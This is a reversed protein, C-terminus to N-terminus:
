APNSKSKNKRFALTGGLGLASFALWGVLPGNQPQLPIRALLSALIEDFPSTSSLPENIIVAAEDSYDSERSQSDYATIAFYYVEGNNLGDLRYQSVRGITRRRTYMGSTKGYYLNYGVLEPESSLDWKLDVYGPGTNVQLNQPRQLNAFGYGTVIVEAPPLETVAEQGGYPQAGPNLNIILAEPEGSLINVPFAQDVINVSTHGLESVQYDYAEIPTAIAYPTKVKFRVTAVKAQAQAFGGSINSRGLKVLGQDTSIETEGPASLTFPSEDTDISVAELVDANYDLWSRVSVVNQLGPNKLTLNVDFEDGVRAETVASTIELTADAQQALTIAYCVTISVLLGTIIYLTKKM